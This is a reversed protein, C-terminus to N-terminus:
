LMEKKWKKSGACVQCLVLIQNPALISYESMSYRMRLDAGGWVGNASIDLRGEDGSISTRLTLFEGALRELHPEVEVNSCVETLMEATIDRLENHRIAPFGGTLCSLCHKVSFTKECVCHSPVDKLPWNYRFHLADRFAAKSLCVGQEELPKTTLWNSTGRENALEFARSYPSSRESKRKSNLSIVLLKM